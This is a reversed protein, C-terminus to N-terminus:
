GQSNRLVERASAIDIDRLPSDAGVHVAALLAALDGGRYFLFRGTEKNIKIELPGCSTMTWKAICAARHPSFFHLDGDDTIAYGLMEDEERLWNDRWGLAEVAITDTVSLAGDWYAQVDQANMEREGTREYLDRRRGAYLADARLIATGDCILDSEPATATEGWGQTVSTKLEALPQLAKARKVPLNGLREKLSKLRQRCKEEMRNAAEIAERAQERINDLGSTDGGLAEVIKLRRLLGQGYGRCGAIDIRQDGGGALSKEM